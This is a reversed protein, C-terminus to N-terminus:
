IDVYMKFYPIESKYFRLGTKKLGFKTYFDLASERADCWFYTVGHEKVATLIYALVKSGIGQNQYESLTAFKRLRAQNGQHYVSAVSVLTDGLYAGFHWADEDGAVFCFEPSENPWLVSHRIPITKKGDIIQINIKM